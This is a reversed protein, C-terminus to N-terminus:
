RIQQNEAEEASKLIVRLAQVLPSSAVSAPLVTRLNDVCQQLICQCQAAAILQQVTPIRSAALKEAANTLCAPLNETSVQLSHAHLDQLM